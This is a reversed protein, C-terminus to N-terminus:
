IMPRTKAMADPKRMPAENTMLTRGIGPRREEGSGSSSSTTESLSTARETPTPIRFLFLAQQARLPLAPGDRALAM